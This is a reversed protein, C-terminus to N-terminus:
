AAAKKAAVALRHTALYAVVGGVFALAASMFYSLGPHNFPPKTTEAIGYSFAVPGLLYGLVSAISNLATIAGQTAGQETPLVSRTILAQAAPQAIGGFSALAVIAYIMWGETALGYGIFAAVGIAAGILLARREGLVSKGLVHIIKKALGGQVM